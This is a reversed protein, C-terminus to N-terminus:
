RTPAKSKSPITVVEGSDTVVTDPPIASIKATLSSRVPKNQATVARAGGGLSADVRYLLTFTGAKVASLKWVAERTAGPRLPGLDFTNVSANEAGGPKESGVLKPYHESLVWVPRDPQALGPEPSRVAFPLPSAKGEKGAISISITLAPVTRKGPNRVGIRLLSTQGLQQQAPFDAAVVKVRYKGSSEKAGSPSDSGCGNAVLALAM